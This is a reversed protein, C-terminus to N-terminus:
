RVKIKKTVSIKKKNQILSVTATYSGARVSKLSALTLAVTKGPLIRAGKVSSNKTGLPGKLKVTGTVPAITNGTNHVRLTLAKAKGKGAVKAAGAKLGYSATAANYRLTDVLRYGAVVGKRKAIDAPVGVVELAGYLYGSSPVGGLTVTLVKSAGAALAFSTESVSVGGLTARRNPAVVGSSSQKWPRAHVTVTLAENSNNAVKLTDTAGAQAVRDVKVTKSASGEVTSLSLGNSLQAARASPDDARAIVAGGVAAALVGAAAITKLGAGSVTLQVGLGKARAYAM